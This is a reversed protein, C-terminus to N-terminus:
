KTKKKADLSKKIIKKVEKLSRVQFDVSKTRKDNYRGEKRKLLFTISKPFLTKVPSIQDIRDDIFFLDINQKGAIKSIEDAKRADSIVVKSFYKEIGSNKIKSCQFNTRAFSLLVLERRKFNDLFNQADRFLFKYSNNILEELDRKLKKSNINGKKALYKIQKEPDYKQLGKKTKKPYDYYTNFFDKQLVGNKLFVKLLRGRFKKTNFLSDDFDLFIKM